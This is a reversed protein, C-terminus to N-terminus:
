NKYHNSYYNYLNEVPINTFMIIKLLTTANPMIRDNEIYNITQRSISLFSALEQQKYKNELRWLKIPNIM